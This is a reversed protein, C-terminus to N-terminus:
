LGDSSEPPYAARRVADVLSELSAEVHPVPLPHMEFRTVRRGDRSVAVLGLTPHARLADDFSDPLEGPIAEGILVRRVPQEEGVPSLPSRGSIEIDPATSLANRVIVELM